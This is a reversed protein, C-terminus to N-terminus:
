WPLPVALGWVACKAALANTAALYAPLNGGIAVSSAVTGVGPVVANVAITGTFLLTLSVTQVGVYIAGAILLSGGLGRVHSKLSLEGDSNEHVSIYGAKSSLFKNLQEANMKRLLPDLNHSPIHQVYKDERAAVFQGQHLYFDTTPMDNKMSFSDKAIQYTDANLSLIPLLLLFLKKM